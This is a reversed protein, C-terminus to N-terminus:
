VVSKRDIYIIWELEDTTSLNNDRLRVLNRDELDALFGKVLCPDIPDCIDEKPIM